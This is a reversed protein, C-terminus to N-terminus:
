ATQAAPEKVIRSVQNTQMDCARCFARDSIGERTVKPALRALHGGNCCQWYFKQNTMEDEKYIRREVMEYWEKITNLDRVADKLAQGCALTIDELEKHTLPINVM